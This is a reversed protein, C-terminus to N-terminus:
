RNSMYLRESDLTLQRREDFRRSRDLALPCAPIVLGDLLAEQKARAVQEAEDDSTFRGAPYVAPAIHDLLYQGKRFRTDQIEHLAHQMLRLKTSIRLAVRFLM